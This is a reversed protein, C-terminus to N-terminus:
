AKWFPKSAERKADMWDMGIDDLLRNDLELLHARLEIRQQWGRVASVMRGAIGFLYARLSIPTGRHEGYLSSGAVNHVITTSM